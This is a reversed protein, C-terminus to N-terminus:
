LAAIRQQENKPQKMYSHIGRLIATAIKLQHGSNVLKLEEAHNSIFATEVLISPIDPSKLVAFGAKQVSEFHLEAVNEFNHLVKNALLVSAEQTANQSLDLLVNTLGNEEDNLQEGEVLDAANESHAHWYASESSAGSTSLAYVSAGRVGTDKISDAHISIFVDAKAARAIDMRKRLGVYYDGQRVMVAKMGTQANVLAELKKSISFVVDKEYTGGSGQAGSDNGGHGADIAVIFPKVGRPKLTETNQVPIFKTASKKIEVESVSKVSQPVKEVIPVSLAISKSIPKSEVKAVQNSLGKDLLEVVFRNNGLADTHLTTTKASLPKKLDIVIRLDTSNKTGIRVSSFLPHSAPPQTLEKTAVANPLDIVLRAPNDFFQVKNQSAAASVDLTIRSQDPTSWYRLSNVRLVDDAHALGVLGNLSLLIILLKLYRCM